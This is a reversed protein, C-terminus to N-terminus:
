YNEYIKVYEDISKLLHNMMKNTMGHHCGILIGNKMIYDSNKFANIRDRICM